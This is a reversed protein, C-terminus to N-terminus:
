FLLISLISTMTYCRLECNIWKRLNSFNYFCSNFVTGNQSKMEFFIKGNTNIRKMVHTNKPIFAWKPFVRKLPFINKFPTAEIFPNGDLKYLQEVLKLFYIDMYSSLCRIIILNHM